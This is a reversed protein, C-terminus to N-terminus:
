LVQAIDPLPIPKRLVTFAGRRLAEAEVDPSGYATLLIMKTRLSRERACALVELGENGTVGLRLDAILIDYENQKLFARASDLDPAADVQYGRTILYHELAFLIAEEDEVVLISPRQVM